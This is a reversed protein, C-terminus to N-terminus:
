LSINGSIILVGVSILLLSASIEVAKKYNTFQELIGRILTSLFFGYFFLTFMVAGIGFSLGLGIASFITTTNGSLSILTLIPACLNISITAGLSFYGLKSIDKKQKNNHPKHIGCAKKGKISNYIMYVGLLVTSTGLIYTYIFNDDILNKVLVSSSSAIVAIIVYTFIRGLSFSIMVGMSEKVSNSKNVLIPSLFPMCSLMCATAGFTLGM